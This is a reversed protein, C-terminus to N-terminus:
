LVCPSVNSSSHKLYFREDVTKDVSLELPSQKRYEYSATFPRGAILDSENVAYLHRNEYITNDFLSLLTLKFPRTIEDDDKDLQLFRLSGDANQSLRIPKDSIMKTLQSAEECLYGFEGDPSLCELGINSVFWEVLRFSRNQSAESACVCDVAISGALRM